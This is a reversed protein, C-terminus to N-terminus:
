NLIKMLCQKAKKKLLEEDIKEIINEIIPIEDLMNKHMNKFDEKEKQKKTLGNWRIINYKRGKLDHELASKLQLLEEIPIKSSIDVGLFSFFSDANLKVDCM